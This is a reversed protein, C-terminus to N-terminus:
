GTKGIARLPDNSNLSPSTFGPKKLNLSRVEEKMPITTSFIAGSASNSTFFDKIAPALVESERIIDTSAALVSQRLLISNGSIIQKGAALPTVGSRVAIVKHDAVAVAGKDQATLVEMTTAVHAPSQPLFATETLITAAACNTSAYLVERDQQYPAGRIGDDM